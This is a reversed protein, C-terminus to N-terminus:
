QLRELIEDRRMTKISNWGGPVFQKGNAYIVPLMRNGEALLKERTDEDETIDIETFMIQKDSLYSKAAACLGCGKKTYLTLTKM